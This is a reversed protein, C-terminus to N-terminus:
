FLIRSFVTTFTSDFLMNLWGDTMGVDKIVMRKTGLQLVIVPKEPHKILMQSDFARSAARCVTTDSILMVQTSALTPLATRSRFSIMATDTSSVSLAYNDRYSKARSGSSDACAGVTQAALRHPHSVLAFMSLIAILHVRIMRWSTNSMDTRQDVRMKSREM